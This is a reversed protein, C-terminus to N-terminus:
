GRGGELLELIRPVVVDEGYRETIFRTVEEPDPLRLRGELYEELKSRLASVDGAPVIVEAPFGRLVEPIAGADTAIVPCGFAMAEIVILGFCELARTPLVFLDAAEYALKLHEDSLRGTFTVRETVGLSAAQARLRPELPGEGGIVFRCRGRALSPALAELAVDIGYRERLQRVTLLITEDAPWGLLRRAEGRTHMRILDPRKWYPIVSVRQGLGHFAEIQSRTYQSLAHIAACRSLLRQELRRLMGQGFSLKLRGIWGQGAWNVRQELVIPSHVTMVYHPGAGLADMAGGGTFHSHIHVVDWHRDSLHRRAADAAAAANRAIVGPHWGPLPPKDYRVIQLGDEGRVDPADAARGGRICLVAVHHGRERMLRALDWAVRAAGGPVDAFWFDVAVLYNM